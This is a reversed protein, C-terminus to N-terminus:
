LGTVGKAPSRRRGSPWGVTTKNACMNSDESFLDFVKQYFVKQKSALRVVQKIKMKKSNIKLM